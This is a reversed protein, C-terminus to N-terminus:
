HWTVQASPYYNIGMAALRSGQWGLRGSYESWSRGTTPSWGLEAYGIIRPFAMYDIDSKTKITETWLPAELGVVNSGSVNAVQTNPDWSSYGDQVTIYGAWNQGLTTST